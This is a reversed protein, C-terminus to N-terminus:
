FIGWYWIKYDLLYNQVSFMKRCCKVIEWSCYCIPINEKLFKKYNFEKCSFM